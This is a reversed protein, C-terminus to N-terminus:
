SSQSLKLTLRNKKKLAADRLLIVKFFLLIIITSPGGHGRNSSDSNPGYDGVIDVYAMIFPMVLISRSKGYNKRFCQIQRNKGEFFICHVAPFDCVIGM